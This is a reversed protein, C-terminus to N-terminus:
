KSRLERIHDQVALLLDVAEGLDLDSVRQIVTLENDLQIARVEFIADRLKNIYEKRAAVFSRNGSIARDTLSALLKDNHITAADIVTNLAKRKQELTM